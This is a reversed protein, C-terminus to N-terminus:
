KARAPYVMRIAVILMWCGMAGRWWGEPSLVWGAGVLSEVVGAALAICGLLLLIQLLLKTNM